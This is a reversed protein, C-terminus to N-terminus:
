SIRSKYIKMVARDRIVPIEPKELFGTGPGAM